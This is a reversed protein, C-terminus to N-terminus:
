FFLSSAPFCLFLAKYYTLFNTRQISRIHTSFCKYRVFDEEQGHSTQVVISLSNDKDVLDLSCVDPYCLRKFYGFIWINNNIFTYQYVHGDVYDHAIYSIITIFIVKNRIKSFSM